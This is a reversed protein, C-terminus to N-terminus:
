RRATTFSGYLPLLTLTNLNINGNLYGPGLPSIPEPEQGERFGGSMTGTVSTDVSNVVINGALDASVSDDRNPYMVQDQNTIVGNSITISGSVPQDAPDLFDSIRGSFTNQAFDATLEMKGVAFNDLSGPDTKLGAIGSYTAQGSEPVATGPSTVNPVRYRTKDFIETMFGLRSGFTDAPPPPPPESGNTSSGGTLAAVAIGAVLFVGARDREEKAKSREREFLQEQRQVAKKREKDAKQIDQINLLDADSCGILSMALVCCVFKRYNSM